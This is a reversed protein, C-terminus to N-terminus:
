KLTCRVRNGLSSQLEGYEVSAKIGWHDEYRLGVLAPVWSILSYFFFLVLSEGKSTSTGSSTGRTRSKCLYKTHTHGSHQLDTEVGADWFNWQNRGGVETPTKSIHLSLFKSVKLFCQDVPTDVQLSHPSKLIETLNKIPLLYLDCM